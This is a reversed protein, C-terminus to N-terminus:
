SFCLEQSGLLALNSQLWSAPVRRVRNKSRWGGGASKPHLEWATAWVSESACAIRRLCQGQRHRSRKRDYGRPKNTPPTVRSIGLDVSRSVWSPWAALATEREQAQLRNM